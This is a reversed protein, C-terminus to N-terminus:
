RPSDKAIIAEAIERMNKGVIDPAAFLPFLLFNRRLSFRIM